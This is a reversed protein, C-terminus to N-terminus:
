HQFFLRRKMQPLRRQTLILSCLDFAVAAYPEGGSNGVCRLHPSPEEPKARVHLHDVRRVQAILYCLCKTLSRGAIASAARAYGYRRCAMRRGLM